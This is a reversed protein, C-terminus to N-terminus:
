PGGPWLPIDPTYSIFDLVWHSVVLGAVVWAWACVAADPLLDSWGALGLPINLDPQAFAFPQVKTIGPVVQVHEIGVFLFIPWALDLFEAAAVLLGLSTRPAFRKAALSVGFRGIFMASFTVRVRHVADVEPNRGFLTTRSCASSRPEVSNSRSYM